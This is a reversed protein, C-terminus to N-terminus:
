GDIADVIKRALPHDVGFGAFRRCLQELAPIAAPLKCRAAEARGAGPIAAILRDDDLETPVPVIGAKSASPIAAAPVGSASFLDPQRDSM